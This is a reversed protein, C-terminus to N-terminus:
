QLAGMKLLANIIATENVEGRPYYEIGGNATRLLFHDGWKELMPLICARWRVVPKM